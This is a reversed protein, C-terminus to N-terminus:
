INCLASITKINSYDPQDMDGDVQAYEDNGTNWQDLLCQWNTYDSNKRHPKRLFEDLEKEEQRNLIDCEDYCLYRNSKIAIWSHFLKGNTESDVVHFYPVRGDYWNIYVCYKEDSFTGIKSMRVMMTKEKFTLTTDDEGNLKAIENFDM